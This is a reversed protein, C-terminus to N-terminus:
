SPVVDPCGEPHAIPICFKVWLALLRPDLSAPDVIGACEACRIGYAFEVTTRGPPYDYAAKVATLYEGHVTPGKVEGLISDTLNGPYHLTPGSM